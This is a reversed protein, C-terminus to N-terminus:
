SDAEYRYIAVMKGTWVIKFDGHHSLSQGLVEWGARLEANHHGSVIYVYRGSWDDMVERTEEVVTEVRPWPAARVTGRISRPKLRQNISATWGLLVLDNENAQLAVENLLQDVAAVEYDAQSSEIIIGTALVIAALLAPLGSAWFRRVPSGASAKGTGKDGDDAMAGSLKEILWGLAIVLGSLLSLHIIALLPLNIRAELPWIQLTSAAATVTTTAFAAWAAIPMQRRWLLWGVAAVILLIGTPVSYLYWAKELMTNGIQWAHFPWSADLPLYRDSWYSAFEDGQRSAIPRSYFVYIVAAATAAVSSFGAIQLMRVWDKNKLWYIGLVIGSGAVAFWASFSLFVAALATVLWVVGALLRGSRVWWDAILILGIALSAESMYQKAETLYRQILPCALIALVMAYGVARNGALRGLIHGVCTLLGLGFLAPPIRCVWPRDQAWSVTLRSLALYGPSISLRSDIAQTLSQALTPEMAADIFWVEDNWLSRDAHWAIIFVATAAVM